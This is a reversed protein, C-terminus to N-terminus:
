IIYVIQIRAHVENLSIFIFQFQFQILPPSKRVQGHARPPPPPPPPPNLCTVMGVFYFDQHIICVLMTQCYHTNPSNTPIQNFKPTHMHLLQQTIHSHMPKLSNSYNDGGFSTQSPVIFRAGYTHTDPRVLCKQIQKKETM